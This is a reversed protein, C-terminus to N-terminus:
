YRMYKSSRYYINRTSRLTSSQSCFNENPCVVPLKNAWDGEPNNSRCVEETPRDHQTPYKPSDSRSGERRAPRSFGELDESYSQGRTGSRYCIALLPYINNPQRLLFQRFIKFDELKWGISCSLYPLPQVGFTHKM